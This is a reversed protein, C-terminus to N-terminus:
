CEGATTRTVNDLGLRGVDIVVDPNEVGNKMLDVLNTGGALFRGGTEAALRIAEGVSGARQFDFSRL